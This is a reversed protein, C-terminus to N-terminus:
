EPAAVTFGGIAIDAFQGTALLLVEKGWFFVKSRQGATQMSLTSGPDIEKSFVRSGDM